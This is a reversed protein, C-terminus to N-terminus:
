QLVGEDDRREDTEDYCEAGSAEDVSKYGEHDRFVKSISWHSQGHSNKRVDTNNMQLFTVPSSEGLQHQMQMQISGLRAKSMHLRNKQKNTRVVERALLRASKVDNKAALQKLSQRAKSTGMDLQLPSGTDAYYAIISSIM